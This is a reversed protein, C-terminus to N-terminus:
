VPSMAQDKQCLEVLSYINYFVQSNKSTKDQLAITTIECRSYMSALQEINM